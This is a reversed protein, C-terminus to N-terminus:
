GDWGIMDIIPSVQSVQGASAAAKRGLMTDDCTLWVALEDPM